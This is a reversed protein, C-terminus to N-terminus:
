VEAGQRVCFIVSLSVHSTNAAKQAQQSGRWRIEAVEVDPPWHAVQATRIAQRQTFVPSPGTLICSCSSLHSPPGSGRYISSSPIPKRMADACGSGPGLVWLCHIEPALSPHYFCM